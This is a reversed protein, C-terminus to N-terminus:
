RGSEEKIRDAVALAATIDGKLAALMLQGLDTSPAALEYLPQLVTDIQALLTLMGSYFTMQEHAADFWMIRVGAYKVCYRLREAYNDYEQGCSLDSALARYDEAM